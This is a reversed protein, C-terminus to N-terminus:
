TYFFGPGYGDRYTHLSIEWMGPQSSYLFNQVSVPLVNPM